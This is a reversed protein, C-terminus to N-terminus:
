AQRAVSRASMYAELPSLLIVILWIPISILDPLARMAPLSHILGTANGAGAVFAPVLGGSVSQSPHPASLETGEGSFLNDLKVGCRRCFKGQSRAENQCGQCLRLDKAGIHSPDYNM